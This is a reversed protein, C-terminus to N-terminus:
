TWILIFFFCSPENQDMRMCIILDITQSKGLKTHPHVKKFKRLIHNYYPSLDQAIGIIEKEGM